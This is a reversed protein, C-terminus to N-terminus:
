LFGSAAGLVAGVAISMGMDAGGMAASYMMGTAAGSMAGGMVSQTSSPGKANPNSTGGGPAALLNAGHQFVDLDWKADLEDIKMDTDTQEKKAVIKMRYGEVLMTSVIRQYELKLGIVKIADDSFAKNHLDASFRAVQRDQNEELIARGIAFASSSVANIDRMGAEFRPVVNALFHADLDATYETVADDIRAEDLVNSILTDLSTGTSLLTVLTQLTDPAALLNVLDADPDYAAQGVWPSDGLAAVMADDMTLEGAVGSGDGLVNGHWTTIHAPYEIKGSGGGGGGKCLAIPGNYDYSKEEIVQLSKTDIICETIIKM